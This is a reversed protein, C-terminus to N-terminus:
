KDDNSRRAEREAAGLVKYDIGDDDDYYDDDDDGDYKGKVSALMIAGIVCFLIGFILGLTFFLNLDSSVAKMFIGLIIEIIGFVLFLKGIKKKQMMSTYEERALDDENRFKHGCDSCVWYLKNSKFTTTQQKNGCNGCLLGFPGFVLYGLCGKVGSYGGGRTITKDDNESIAQLHSGGCMPCVIKESRKEAINEEARVVAPEQKTERGCEPCFKDGDKLEKGCNSCYM